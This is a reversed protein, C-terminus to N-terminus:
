ILAITPISNDVRVSSMGSGVRHVVCKTVFCCM